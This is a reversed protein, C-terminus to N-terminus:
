EPQPPDKVNLAELLIASDEKFSVDWLMQIRLHKNYLFEEKHKMLKIKSFGLKRLEAALTFSAFRACIVQINEKNPLKELFKVDLHDTHMHSIYLVDVKLSLAWEELWRNNPFPFWSYYFAPYFWPDLLVNTGKYSFYFAAHGMYHIVPNEHSPSDTTPFNKFAAADPRPCFIRQFLNMLGTQCSAM